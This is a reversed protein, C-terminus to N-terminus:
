TSVTRIELEDVIRSAREVAEESSDGVTIVFGARETHNTPVDVMDGPAAALDIRHVWPLSELSSVDGVKVVRGPEPFFYRIAVGQSTRPTVDDIVVQEGLSLRIAAGVFDVGTGLPIQDTCLWGGSLRAAMEIVIPGEPGLVLDGKATGMEIGLARAANEATLAVSARDAVSLATPQQGGNEIIWPSFRELFEYNRDVFGPTVAQGNVLISETSVQPGFIFEEVMVRSTPSQSLTHRFERKLDVGATLRVVGRAGRSDVPKMILPYGREAVAERLEEVSGVSRFWPVPIGMEALRVKMALKDATIRATEMTIGPLGLAEAIGAVTQPVDAAVSIVGDISSHVRVFRRAQEVLGPVDYTSVVLADDALALGPADPSGDAVVTRLGMERARLIGPVAEAGGSIILLTRSM